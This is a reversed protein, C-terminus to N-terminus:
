TRAGRKAMDELKRVRHRLAEIHLKAGLWLFMAAMLGAASGTIYFVLDRSM